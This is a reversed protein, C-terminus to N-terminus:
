RAKLSKIAQKSMSGAASKAAGIVGVDGYGPGKVAVHLSAIAGSADGIEGEVEFASGFFPSGLVGITARALSSGRDVEVLREKFYLDVPPTGPDSRVVDLGANVLSDQLKMHYETLATYASWDGPTTAGSTDLSYVSCRRGKFEV